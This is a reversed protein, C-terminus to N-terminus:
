RPPRSHAAAATTGLCGDKVLHQRTQLIPPAQACWVCGAALAAPRSCRVTMPMLRTLPLLPGVRGWPRQCSAVGGLSAAALLLVLLLLCLSWSSRWVSGPSLQPLRSLPAPSLAVLMLLLLLLLYMMAQRWCTKMMVVVVVMLLLLKMLTV